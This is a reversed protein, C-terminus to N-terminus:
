SYICSQVAKHQDRCAWAVSVLRGTACEAFEAAAGILEFHVACELVFDGRVLHDCEKLAKQKTSKLLTEEERQSVVNM